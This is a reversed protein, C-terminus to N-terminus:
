MEIRHIVFKYFWCLRLFSFPSIQNHTVKGGACLDGYDDASKFRRLPGFKDVDLQPPWTQVLVVM